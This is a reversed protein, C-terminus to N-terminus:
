STTRRAKNWALSWPYKLFRWLAVAHWFRAWLVVPVRLLWVFCRLLRCAVIGLVLLPTLLFQVIAIKM